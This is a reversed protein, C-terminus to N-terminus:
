RGVGAHAWQPAVLPSHRHSGSPAVLPPAGRSTYGHGWSVVVSPILHLSPQVKEHNPQLKASWGFPHEQGDHHHQDGDEDQPEAAALRVQAVSVGGAKGDTRSGTSGCTAWCRLASTLKWLTRLVPSQLTWRDLQLYKVWRVWARIRWCRRDVRLLTSSNRLGTPWCIKLLRRARSTLRWWSMERPGLVPGM